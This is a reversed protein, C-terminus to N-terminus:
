LEGEARHAGEGPVTPVEPDPRDADSENEVLEAIWRAFVAANRVEAQEAFHWRLAPWLHNTKLPNRHDGRYAQEM